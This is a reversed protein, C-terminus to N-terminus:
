KGRVRQMQLIAAEIGKDDANTGLNKGKGTELLRLANDYWRMKKEIYEKIRGERLRDDIKRKLNEVESEKKPIAQIVKVLKADLKTLHEEYESADMKMRKRRSIEEQALKIASNLESKESKLKNLEDVIESLVSETKINEKIAEKLPSDNKNEVKKNAM